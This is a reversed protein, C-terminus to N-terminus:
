SEALPCSIDPMQILSMGTHYSCPIQQSGQAVCNGAAINISDNMCGPLKVRVCISQGALCGTACLASGAVTILSNPQSSSLMQEASLLTRLQDCAHM